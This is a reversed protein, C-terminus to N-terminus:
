VAVDWLKDGDCWIISNITNQMKDKDEHAEDSDTQRDGVPVEELM